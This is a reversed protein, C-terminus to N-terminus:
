NTNKNTKQPLVSTSNSSTSPFTIPLKPLAEHLTGIFAAAISPSSPPLFGHANYLSSFYVPDLLPLIPHNDPLEKPHNPEFHPYPLLSFHGGHASSQHLEKKREQNEIETKDINIKNNVYHKSNKHSNHSDLRNNSPKPDLSRKIQQLFKQQQQMSRRQQQQMKAIQLQEPLSPKKSNTSSTLTIELNSRPFSQENEFSTRKFSHYTNSDEFKDDEVKINKCSLDLVNPLNNGLLASNQILRGATPNEINKIEEKPNGYVFSNKNSFISRSQTVKSHISYSDAREHCGQNAEQTSEAEGSTKDEVNSSDCMRKCSSSESDPRSKSLTNCTQSESLKYQDSDYEMSHARKLMSINNLNFTIFVLWRNLITKNFFIFNKIHCKNWDIIIYNLHHNGHCKFAKEREKCGTQVQKLKNENGCFSINVRKIIYHLLQQIKINIRQFVNGCFVGEM